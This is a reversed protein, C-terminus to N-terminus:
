CGPFCFPIDGWSCCAGGALTMEKPKIDDNKYQSSYSQNECNIRGSSFELNSEDHNYVDLSYQHSLNISLNNGNQLSKNYEVCNHNKIDGQYENLSKFNLLENAQAIGQLLMICTLLKILKM